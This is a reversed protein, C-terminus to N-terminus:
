DRQFLSRLAVRLINYGFLKEFIYMQAIYSLAGMVAAWIFGLIGITGMRSLIFAVCGIMVLSAILPYLLSQIFGATSCKIIRIVYVAAIVQTILMPIVVAVSAGMIDFRRTLPYIIAALVALQFMTLGTLIRPRGVGYFLPGTTAGFSRTIGFLCLVQLAPVMPLWRQHLFIRTFDPALVFILAAVPFSLFTTAEMAQLYARRLKSPEDQLKSYAPFTVQSIVHTIETAPVNSIRYAMQYFGLAATGFMKAVLMDDGHTLLFLLINSGLVWKGYTFLERAKDWSPEIRPRYPHIVYSLVLATVHRAMLGLVLAWVNRLIFAAWITVSLDVISAVFYYVFQKNVELEKKLYILGINRFGALLLNLALARIVLVAGPTKFFTGVWGSLSFVLVFLMIGRTIQVTWATNLYSNTDSKKQVLATDFGPESFSELIAIVLLAIGLLGFEEPALLRALVLVRLVDLLRDSVRLIFIWVGGRAVRQTLTHGPSLLNKLGESIDM